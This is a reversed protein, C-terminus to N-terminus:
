DRVHRSRLRGSTQDDPHDQYRSSDLSGHLWCVGSGPRRPADTKTGAPPRGAARARPQAVGGAPRRWPPHPCPRRNRKSHPGNPPAIVPVMRNPAQKATRQVPRTRACVPGAGRATGACLVAEGPARDRIRRGLPGEEVLIADTAVVRLGFGRAHVGRPAQREVVDVQSAHVLVRLREFEDHALHARAHHRRCAHLAGVGGGVAGHDLPQFPFEIPVGHGVHHRGPRVPQIAGFAGVGDLVQQVQVDVRRRVRGDSSEVLPKSLM